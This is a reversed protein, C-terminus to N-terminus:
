SASESTGTNNAAAVRDTAPETQAADSASSKPGTVEKQDKQAIPVIVNDRNTFNQVTGGSLILVKDVFQLINPRHAIVMVICNREKADLIAKNLAKEGESDLHANPEDLVLLHPNGFLARALGVRQRQGGSLLSGQDGVDTDFGNPLNQIVTDVGAMQAADIIDKSSATEQLRAINEAVTGDLLEVNQPLYGVHQGLNESPWAYVDSGALRVVGNTPKILGIIISALTTKGAASHGVIGIIEGPKATFNINSLIPREIGAVKYSVNDVVLDGAVDTPIVSSRPKDVAEALSNTITAYDARLDGIHQYSGVLSELPMLARGVLIVSAMMAGPSMVSGPTMIEMAAATMVTMQIAMRLFKTTAGLIAARKSAINQYYITEENGVHWRKVITPSMGMSEVIDSNRVAVSATKSMAGMSASARRLASKTLRDNAIALVVLILAGATAVIGVWFNLIFLVLIFLPIWPADLMNFMAPSTLMGHFRHLAQIPQISKVKGRSLASSLACRLLRGSLRRDIFSGVHLFVYSRAIDIIAQILLAFIAMTFLAALTAMSYSSLVRTFVSFMYLPLVLIFLNVAFSFIAVSVFAGRCARLADTLANKTENNEPQTKIISM